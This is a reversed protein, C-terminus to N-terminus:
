LIVPFPDFGLGHSRGIDPLAIQFLDMKAQSGFAELVVM